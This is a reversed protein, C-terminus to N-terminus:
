IESLLRGSGPGELFVFDACSSCLILVVSFLSGLSKAVTTEEHPLRGESRLLLMTVVTFDNMFSFDFCGPLQNM